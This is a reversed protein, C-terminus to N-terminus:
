GLDDIKMREIQDEQKKQKRIGIFIMLFVLTPINWLFFAPIVSLLNGYNNETQLEDVIVTQASENISESQTSTTSSVAVFMFMSAVIVLSSIFSVIPLILGLWKSKKKSLFVQLFILGVIAGLGLIIGFLIFVTVNSM